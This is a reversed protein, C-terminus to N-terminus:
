TPKATPKRNAHALAHLIMIFCYADKQNGNPGFSGAIRIFRFGDKTMIRVGTVDTTSKPTEYDVVESLGLREIRGQNVVYFAESTFIVLCEEWPRPNRYWGIITEDAALLLEAPPEAKGDFETFANPSTRKMHRRVLSYVLLTMMM